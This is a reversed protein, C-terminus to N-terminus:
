IGDATLYQELAMRVIGSVSVHKRRAAIKARRLLDDSLYINRRKGTSTDPLAKADLRDTYDVKLVRGIVEEDIKVRRTM